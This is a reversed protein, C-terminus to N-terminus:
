SQRWTNRLERAWLWMGAAFFTVGTGVFLLDDLPRWTGARLAAGAAQAYRWALPLQVGFLLALALVRGALWIPAFALVAHREHPPLRELSADDRRGMVARLRARLWAETDGMLNRCGLANAIVYYFDTRVFFYCQWLLGFAYAVFLARALVLTTDSVQILERRAAFLFLVLLAAGLLDVLPGALFPLYRARRPVLWIGSMDTEAVLLWLRNGVGLRCPVGAARAAIVHASEHLGVMVLALLAVLPGLSTVHQPFYADRFRPLAGPDAWAACAAALALMAIGYLVPRSVLPAARAPTLWAFPDRALPTSAPETGRRRVLGHAELETLLGALDPEDGHRDQFVARTQALTHGAALLDLIEVVEGPVILVEGGDARGIAVEEGEPQRLFPLVEVQADPELALATM